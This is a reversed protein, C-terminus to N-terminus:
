AAIPEAVASPAAAPTEAAPEEATSYLIKQIDEVLAKVETKENTQCTIEIDRLKGFYFDREATLADVHLHLSSNLVEM